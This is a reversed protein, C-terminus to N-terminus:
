FISLETETTFRELFKMGRHSNGNENLNPSWVCICYKEPHVAVIGGGVGSKGPLGVKFAFEGSEDYFGCTQMVANIRKSQSLNLVSSGNKTRFKGDMLFEFSHALQQCDMEISCMHFYFDLVENPDNDINGFSKIFNCLAINRYGVSAESQAVTENYYVKDSGSVERVFSLFDFLPNKLQSLLMDCIVLAGGNIFPNRPIGNDTELRVLSNFASGSPEVGVRKWISDGLMQYALSLSLVKMISQISFKTQWDGIGYTDNETSMFYVGFQNPDVKALEPIYGAPAGLNDGTIIEEYIKDIIEKHNTIRHM